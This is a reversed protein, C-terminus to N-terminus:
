YGPNQVLYGKDVEEQPFPYFYMAKTWVRPKHHEALYYDTYSTASAGSENQVYRITYLTGGFTDDAMKWRKCDWWRHGEAFLEM